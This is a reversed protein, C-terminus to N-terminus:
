DVVIGLVDETDVAFIARDNTTVLRKYHDHFPGEPLSGSPGKMKQKYERM